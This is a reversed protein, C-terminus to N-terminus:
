LAMSRIGGDLTSYPTGVTKTSVFPVEGWRCDRLRGELGICLVHIIYRMLM